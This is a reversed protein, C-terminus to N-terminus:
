AARRAGGPRGNGRSGGAPRSSNGPRGKPKVAPGLRLHAIAESHFRHTEDAPVPQRIVKEIAKLYAIEDADCFSLAIGEAGARATRGIRHVYSEPENPLDFNIVHSIGDVDIGRAAIDTAVLTSVRGSHFDALARQRAGQSKNGHIAEAKVGSKVLQEALRNAGHKTRAFVIARTVKGGRLIDLLLDRKKDKSVFMVRQEIREVTTSQPTVEIREHNRLLGGALSSVAVPMTASFLLTLREAPLLAAIKKVDHIFGMDLMRDAEDLVFTEVGDLRVHGRMALDLIRGPTAVVIDCGAQLSQIQPQMGVGGTIVTRKLRLHVGYTAFCKGIQQALERTPTLILARVGKPGARRKDETLRQLIPLAFAATKGTGTQAVGLVDRGALVIPIAKEQIPTAVEYGEASVAHCLPEILGLEVFTTM